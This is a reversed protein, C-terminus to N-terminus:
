TGRARVRPAARRVAGLAGTRGHARASAGCQQWSCAMGGWGLAAGQRTHDCRRPAVNGRWLASRQGASCPLPATRSPAARIRAILTARPRTTMLHGAASRGASERGAGRGAGRGEWQSKRGRLCQHCEEVEKAVFKGPGNMAPSTTLSPFPCYMAPSATLSIVLHTRPEEGGRGGAHALMRARPRQRVTPQTPITM